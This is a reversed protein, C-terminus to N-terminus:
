DTTTAVETRKRYQTTWPADPHEKVFASIVTENQKDSQTKFETQEEETLKKWAEGIVKMAEKGVLKNTNMKSRWHDGFLRYGTVIGAPKPNAPDINKGGKRNKRNAEAEAFIPDSEKLKEWEAQYEENLKAAKTNYKKKQTKTMTAWIKGSETFMGTHSVSDRNKERFEAVFQQFGNTRKAASQVKGKVPLSGHEAIYAQKFKENEAASKAEYVAREADTMATWTTGIKTFMEKVPIVGKNAKRFENGFLTYATIRPVRPAKVEVDTTTTTVETTTDKRVVAVLASVHKILVKHIEAINEEDLGNFRERLEKLVDNCCKDASSSM